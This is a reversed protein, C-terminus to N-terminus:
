LLGEAAFSGWLEATRKRDTNMVPRDMMDENVLWFVVIAMCAQKEASYENKYTCSKWNSVRGFVNEVVVRLARHQDRWARHLLLTDGSEPHPNDKPVLLNNHPKKPYGGDALVCGDKLSSVWDDLQQTEGTDLEFNTM